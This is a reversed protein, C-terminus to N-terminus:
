LFPDSQNLETHNSTLEKYVGEVDQISWSDIAEEEVSYRIEFRTSRV